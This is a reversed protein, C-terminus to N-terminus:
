GTEPLQPIQKYVFPTEGRNSLIASNIGGIHIKDGETFPQPAGHHMRGESRRMLHIVSGKGEVAEYVQVTGDSRLVTTQGPLLTREIPEEEHGPNIDEKRM